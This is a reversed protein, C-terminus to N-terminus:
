QRADASPRIAIWSSKPSRLQYGSATPTGTLTSMYLAYTNIGLCQVAGALDQGLPVRSANHCDVDRAATAIAGCKQSPHSRVVLKTLSQKRMAEDLLQWVKPAYRVDLLPDSITGDEARIPEQLWLLYRDEEARRDRLADVTRKLREGQANPWRLIEAWPLQERAIGEALADTVAIQDPRESDRLHAFRERYNVWHDVVAVCPIRSQSFTRMADQELNSQWGTGILAWRGAGVVCSLNETTKVGAARAMLLAPGEAYVHANRALRRDESLWAFVHAAAGADHLVVGFDGLSWLHNISHTAVGGGQTESGSMVLGASRHM